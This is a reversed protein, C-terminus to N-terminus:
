DKDFYADKSRPKDDYGFCNNKESRKTIKVNKDQCKQCKVETDEAYLYMQFRHGCYTCECSVKM